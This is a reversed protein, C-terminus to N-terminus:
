LRAFDLRHKKVSWAIEHFQVDFSTQGNELPKLGAFEPAYDTGGDIGLTRITKVGALGLLNIAAVASFYRVRVPPGLNPPHPWKESRSSRYSLLRGQRQLRRLARRCNAPASVAGSLVQQLSSERHPEFKRHPYWPLAAAGEGAEIHGGIACFVELDTVVTLDTPLVCCVRNIGLVRYTSLDISSHRSFSPGMGLVLWRSRQREPEDAFWDFVSLVGV